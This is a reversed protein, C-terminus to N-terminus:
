SEPPGAEGVALFEPDLYEDAALRLEEVTLANVIDPYREIFDLGLDFYEINLLMAAVGSKTELALPLVGTLYSKANALEQDTVLDKRLRAVEARVSELARGVNAPNVGARATWLSETKGTEISSYVYYALGQRDRVNAGLRGMLGLNGLILNATELAYYSPHSRALTPFGIVLDSQSKGVIGVSSRVMEEPPAVTPVAEPTYGTAPWDGFAQAFLSAADEISAIGGVISVTMLRPGYHGDHFALLDDRSVAGVSTAEGIVRRRYPHGAPFLLQRMALEAMAQTNNDQEAISTLLENRVKEIEVEPFAPSRVVEAALRILSPLDERLCRISVEAFHRGADVGIMAGLDDTEENIQEFSRGRTGRLMARATFAALGPRDDPDAVAGSEIRIRAVVAPDDPRAQGIVVIGNSLV